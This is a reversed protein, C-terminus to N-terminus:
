HPVETAPSAAAPASTVASEQLYEVKAASLKTRQAFREATAKDAAFRQMKELEAPNANANKLDEETLGRVGTTVTATNSTRGTSLLGTLANLSGAAGNGKSTNNVDFRLNLMRVWGTQGASTKVEDWAGVRRLVDVKTNEPLTALTAADSQAQVQLDTARVTLASEAHAVTAACLAVLIFLSSKM